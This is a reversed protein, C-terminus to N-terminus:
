PNNGCTYSNTYILDTFVAHIDSAYGFFLETGSPIKAPNIVTVTHAAMEQVQIPAPGTPAPVMRHPAGSPLQVALVGASVPDPPAPSSTCYTGTRVLAPIGHRTLAQQLTAPDLVQNMTLNLTDTGNANSTLIFAATQITGLTTAPGPAPTAVPIQDTNRAPTAGPAGTWAIALTSAAAIAAVGLGAVRTLRRRRHARGRSTIAGLPPREPTALESLAERLETTLAADTPTSHHSM